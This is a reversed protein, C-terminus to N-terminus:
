HRNFQNFFHKLHICLANNGDHYLGLAVGVTTFFALLITSWFGIALIFAAILFGLFGYFVAHRHKKFFSAAQQSFTALYMKKYETDASFYTDINNPMTKTENTNNPVDTSTAKLPTDTFATQQSVNAKPSRPIDSYTHPSNM